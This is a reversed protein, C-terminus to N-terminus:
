PLWKDSENAESQLLLPSSFLAHFLVLSVPFTIIMGKCVLRIIKLQEVAFRAQKLPQDCSGYTLRYM